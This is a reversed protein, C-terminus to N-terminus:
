WLLPSGKITGMAMGRMAPGEASAVRMRMLSLWLMDDSMEKPAKITAQNMVAANSMKAGAMYRISPSRPRAAMSRSIPISSNISETCINMSPRRARPTTGASPYFFYVFRM